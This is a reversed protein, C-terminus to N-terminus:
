KKEDDDDDDDDDYVGEELWYEEETKRINKRGTVRGKERAEEMSMSRRNTVRGEMAQWMPQVDDDNDIEELSEENSLFKRELKSLQNKRWNPTGTAPKEDDSHAAFSRVSTLPTLPTLSSVTATAVRRLTTSLM